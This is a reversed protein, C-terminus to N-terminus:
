SRWWPVAVRQRITEVIREDKPCPTLELTADQKTDYWLSHYPPLQLGHASDPLFEEVIKRDRRDNLHFLSYFNAESFFYRSVRSPRQVLMIRPMRLSRGQLLVTDLAGDNQMIMGEDVFMGIGRNRKNRNSQDKCYQWCRWVFDEVDLKQDLRLEMRYLGPRKPVDDTPKIPRIRDRGIQKFLQEGKFDFIVWPRVDISANALLWTAFRTKGSGNRGIVTVQQESNPLIFEPM